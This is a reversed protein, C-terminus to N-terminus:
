LIGGHELIYEVAKKAHETAFKIAEDKDGARQLWHQFYESHFDTNENEQYGLINMLICSGLEAVLEERAYKEDGWAFNEMNIRKLRKAGGTWHVLEHCITRYRRYEVTNGKTAYWFQKDVINITDASPDYWNGGNNDTFQIGFARTIKEVKDFSRWHEHKTTKSRSWGLDLFSTSVGQKLVVGLARDVTQRDVRVQAPEPFPIPITTAGTLDPHTIPPPVPARKTSLPSTFYGNGLRSPPRGVKNVPGYYVNLTKVQRGVRYTKQYYYYRNNNITKIVLYYGRM